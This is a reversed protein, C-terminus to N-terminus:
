HAPLLKSVRQQFITITDTTAGRGKPQIIKAQLTHSGRELWPLAINTAHIPVGVPSGDVYVIVKDEPELTPIIKVTVTLSEAENQFTEDPKPSTITISYQPIPKPTPRSQEDARAIMHYSLTVVTVLITTLIKRM